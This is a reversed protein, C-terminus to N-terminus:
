VKNRWRYIGPRRAGHNAREWQNARRKTDDAHGGKCEDCADEHRRRHAYYGADTGHEISKLTRMERVHVWWHQRAATTTAFVEQCDVCQARIGGDIQIVNPIPKAKCQWKEPDATWDGHVRDEEGFFDEEHDHYKIKGCRKNTETM